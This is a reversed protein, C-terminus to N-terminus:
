AALERAQAALDDIWADFEPDDRADEVAPIVQNMRAHSIGLARAVACYGFELEVRSVYAIIRTPHRGSRKAAESLFDIVNAPPEPLRDPVHRRRKNEFRVGLAHAKGTVSQYTRNLKRGVEAPSAGAAALKRLELREWETWRRM